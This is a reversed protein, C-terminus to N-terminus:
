YALGVTRVVQQENKQTDLDIRYLYLGPPVAGGSQSQGTWTYVLRGDPSREGNLLAIRTGDLAYVGVEPEVGVNLIRMRIEGQDGVQDGNPTVVRPYVEVDDILETPVTPLFVQTARPVRDTAAIQQWLTPQEQEGVFANFVTPNQSIQVRLDVEVTDQAETIPEALLVVLSDSTIKEVTFDDRAAGGVRVVLSAEDVRSPTRFLLRDFSAPEKFDGWLKYTFTTPVAVKAQKPSVEAEVGRIIADIFEVDLSRVTPALLPEDASLILQVQLFRRPSPSLFRDDATYPISWPSWDDGAVISTDPDGRLFKNLKLWAAEDELEEGSLSYYTIADTLEFGTRTRVELHTGDPQIADWSIGLIQKAREDGAFDGLDIFDSEIEVKAVHGTPIVVLESMDGNSYGTRGSIGYIAAIYRMAVPSGMIYQIDSKYAEDDDRHVEEYDLDAATTRGRATSGLGTLKLSGDSSMLRHDNIRTVSFGQRVQGSTNAGLQMLREVWVFAGLDLIWVTPEEATGHVSWTTNFDADILSNGRGTTEIIEGGRDLTGLVFNSGFTYAELEALAASETKSDVRIRIYQISRYDTAFDATSGVPEFLVTSGVDPLPSLNLEVVTQDNYRTTGGLVEYTFLDVSFQRRLGDAGMVRFERLPRAGVTDPFVLRIQTVPLTRGLNLEIWWDDVDADPDPKWYTNPDGDIINDAAVGPENATSGVRWIGGRGEVDKALVHVFEAADSAANINNEFKAPTLSGDPNFTITGPPISWQEWQSRQDLRYIQTEQAPLDMATALVLTATALGIAVAPYTKLM